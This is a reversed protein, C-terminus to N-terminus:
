CLERSSPALALFLLAWGSFIMEVAIVTGLFWISSGPWGWVVMAGLVISIVANFFRWLSGSMHRLSVAASLRLVGAAILAVGIVLTLLAMSALTQLLLCIGLVLFLLASLFSWWRNGARTVVHILHLLGVIVFVFGAVWVAASGLLFPFSLMAFGLILEAVALLAALWSSGVVRNVATNM